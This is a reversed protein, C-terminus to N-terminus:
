KTQCNGNASCSDSADSYVASKLVQIRVDHAIEVVISTPKVEYVTGLIGGSVLVRDGKSLGEQFKRLAKQRKMQPRIMFFYFIVVVLLLMGWTMLPNGGQGAPAQLLIMNM